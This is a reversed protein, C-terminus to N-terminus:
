RPRFTPRVKLGLYTNAATFVAALLCGLILARITLEIRKGTSPPSDTM